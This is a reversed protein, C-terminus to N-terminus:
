ETVVTEEGFMDIIKVAFRTNPRPLSVERITIQGRERIKAVAM